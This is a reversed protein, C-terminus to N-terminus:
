HLIKSKLNLSSNKDLLDYKYHFYCALNLLNYLHEKLLLRSITDLKKFINNKFNTFAIYIAYLECPVWFLKSIALLNFKVVASNAKSSM